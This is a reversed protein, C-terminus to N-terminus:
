FFYQIAGFDKKPAGEINDGGKKWDLTEWHQYNVSVPWTALIPITFLV